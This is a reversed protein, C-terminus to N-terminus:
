DASSSHADPKVSGQNWVRIKSSIVTLIKVLWPVKKLNPKKSLFIYMTDRWVHTLSLSRSFHSNLLGPQTLMLSNSLCLGKLKIKTALSSISQDSNPRQTPNIETTWRSVVGHNNWAAHNIALFLSSDDAPRHSVSACTPECRSLGHGM